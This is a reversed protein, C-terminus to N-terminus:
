VRQEVPGGTDLCLAKTIGFVSLPCGAGGGGAIRPLLKPMSTAPEDHSWGRWLLRFSQGLEDARIAIVGASLAGLDILLRFNELDRDYFPGKNSWEIEPGIGHKFCDAKRTPSEKRLDDVAIATRFRRARWGRTALFGGIFASGRSKNGGAVEMREHTLRFSTLVDIIDRVPRSLRPGPHRKM